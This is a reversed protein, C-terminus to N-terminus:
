KALPSVVEVSSVSLPENHLTVAPQNNNNAVSFGSLERGMRRLVLLMGAVSQQHNHVLKQLAASDCQLGNKLGTDTEALVCKGTLVPKVDLLKALTQQLQHMVLQAQQETRQRTQAEMAQQQYSNAANQRTPRSQFLSNNSRGQVPFPTPISGPLAIGSIQETAPSAPEVAPTLPTPTVVPPIQVPVEAVKFSNNTVTTLLKKRPVAQSKLPYPQTLRVELQLNKFEKPPIPQLLLIFSISFFGFLHLLLSIAM